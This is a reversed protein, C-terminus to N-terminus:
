QGTHLGPTQAKPAFDNHGAKYPEVVNKQYGEQGAKQMNGWTKQAGSWLVQRAREQNQQNTELIGVMAGALYAPVKNAGVVGTQAAGIMAGMAYSATSAAKSVVNIKGQLDTYLRSGPLFGLGNGTGANIAKAVADDAGAGAQAASSLENGCATLGNGTNLFDGALTRLENQFIPVSQVGGPAGNLLDAASKLANSLTSIRPGMDALAKGAGDLAQQRDAKAKGSADLSGTQMGQTSDVAQCAENKRGDFETLTQQGEQKAKALAENAQKVKDKLADRQSELERRRSAKQDQIWQSSSGKDTSLKGLPKDASEVKQLEREYYSDIDATSLEALGQLRTAVEKFGNFAEQLLVKASSDDGPCAVTVLLALAVLPLVVFIRCVGQTPARNTM